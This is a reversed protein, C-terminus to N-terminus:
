HGEEEHDGEAHEEESEDHGELELGFAPGLNDHVHAHTIVTVDAVSGRRSIADKLDVLGSWAAAADDQSEADDAIMHFLSKARYTFLKSAVYSDMDVIEDSAGDGEGATSEDHEHDSAAGHAAEYSHLANDALGAVVLARVTSNTLQDAEIRVSVSEQLLDSIGRIQQAVASRPEGAEVMASLEDFAAPIDAALRENREELEALTDEDFQMMAHEVHHLAAESDGLNRGVLTMHVKVTDVKVLFDASESGSFTHASAAQGAYVTALGAVLLGALLLAATSKSDM